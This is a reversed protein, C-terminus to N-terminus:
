GNDDGLCNNVAAYVTTLKSELEAIDANLVNMHARLLALYDTKGLMLNSMHAVPHAVPYRQADSHAVANRTAILDDLDRKYGNLEIEMKRVQDSIPTKSENAM